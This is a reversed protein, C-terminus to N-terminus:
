EGEEIPEVSIRVIEPLDEPRELGRPDAEDISRIAASSFLDALERLHRGELTIAIKRMSFLLLQVFGADRCHVERIDGYAYSSTRGDSFRIQFMMPPMEGDRIKQWPCDEEDNRVLTPSHHLINRSSNEGFARAVKAM